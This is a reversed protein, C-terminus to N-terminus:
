ETAAPEETADDSAPIWTYDGHRIKWDIEYRVATALKERLGANEAEMAVVQTKLADIEDAVQELLEFIGSITRGIHAVGEPSFLGGSYFTNSVLEPETFSRPAHDFNPHKSM